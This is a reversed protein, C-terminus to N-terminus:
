EPVYVILDIIIMMYNSLLRTNVLLSAKVHQFLFQINARNKQVNKALKRQLPGSIMFHLYEFEFFRNANSKRRILSVKKRQKQDSYTNM